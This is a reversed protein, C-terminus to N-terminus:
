VIGGLGSFVLEESFLPAITLLRTSYAGLLQRFLTDM